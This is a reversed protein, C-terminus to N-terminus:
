DFAKELGAETISGSEAGQRNHRHPRRLHEAAPKSPHQPPLAPDAAVASGAGRRCDGDRQQQGGAAEGGAGQVRRPVDCGAGRNTEVRSLISAFARIEVISSRGAGDGPRPRRPRLRTSRSSCGPRRPDRGAGAVPVAMFSATSRHSMTVEPASPRAAGLPGAHGAQECRTSGQRRGGPDPQHPGRGGRGSRPHLPLGDAAVAQGPAARCLQWRRLVAPQRASWLLGGTSGHHGGRVVRRRARAPGAPPGGPGLGPRQRARRGRRDPRRRRGGPRPDGGTGRGGGLADGLRRGTLRWSGLPSWTGVHGRRGAVRGVTLVRRGQCGVRPPGSTGLSLRHEHTALLRERPDRPDDGPGTGAAASAAASRPAPFRCSLGQQVGRRRRRPCSRAASRRCAPSRSSGVCAHVAAAAAPCVAPASSLVCRSASSRASPRRLPPAGADSSTPAVTSETSSRTAPSAGTSTM